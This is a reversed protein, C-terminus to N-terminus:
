AMNMNHYVVDVDDLAELWEILALNAKQNEADCDVSIKPIM